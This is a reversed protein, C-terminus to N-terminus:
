LFEADVKLPIKAGVIEAGTQSKRRFILCPILLSLASLTQGVGAWRIRALDPIM